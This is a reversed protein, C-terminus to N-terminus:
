NTVTPGLEVNTHTGNPTRNTSSSPHDLSSGKEPVGPKARRQAEHLKPQGLLQPIGCRVFRINVCREIGHININPIQGFLQPIGAFAEGCSCTDEAAFEVSSNMHPVQPPIHSRLLICFLNGVRTVLM